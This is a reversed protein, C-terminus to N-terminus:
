PKAEISDVFAIRTGIWKIVHTTMSNGLARYRPGDPCNYPAKGRWSIKTYNDPQGQLRECEVPTLRRVSYSENHVYTQQNAGPYAPLSGAVPMERLEGRQNQTFAVTVVPAQGENVATNFGKSARDTLTNAVAPVLTSCGHNMDQGSTGQLRGYSADITACTRQILHGAQATNDDVGCVGLSRATLARTIEQAGLIAGFDRGRGSSLVGPVNEWVVWRPRLRRALVCYQLALNGRADDLGGRLGAVSFSQCPTGGILVDIETSIGLRELHKKRITTFDGWLPVGLMAACSERADVAGQRQKLVERPFPEIESLLVPTWGLPRWAASAAEIGSCVSLFKM